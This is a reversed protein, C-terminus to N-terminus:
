EKVCRVPKASASGSSLNQYYVDVDNEMFIFRYIKDHRANANGCWYHGADNRNIGCTYQLTGDTKRNGSTPYFDTNGLGQGNYYFDYGLNFSGKVNPTTFNGANRKCFNYGSNGNAVRYGEPCPDFVTKTKDWMDYVWDNQWNNGYLFTTPHAISYAIAETRTRGGAQAIDTEWDIAPYTRVYSATTLSALRGLPDKRGWQYYFGCAKAKQEDSSTTTATNVAGLALPMVHLTEIYNGTSPNAIPYALTKTADIEPKWIHYSWLITGLNDKIAVVTNGTPVSSVTVKNNDTDLSVEPLILEEGWLATVSAVQPADPAKVGTREYKSNTLYPTIDIECSTQDPGVLYCNASGYYIGEYVTVRNDIENEGKIVLNMTHKTNRRVDFNSTSNEGLYVTYELVKDAGEAVIRMYTACVPANEPSKDRPDTISEVEGQCNELMYFVESYTKDNDINVVDADYYEGKDTSSPNAGFLVTSRPVNCFQVSRLKINESVAADVSITYAIKAAARTVELTPLTMAGLISVNMSATMPIDDVMGDVSYKYRILESETMGGMDKHVNTVVCLTYTGPLIEFVFSPAYEPYYFHYNINNGFFYINIDNIADEDIARTDMQESKLKLEVQVPTDETAPPTPSAPLDGETCSALMVAASVSATLMLKLMKKM